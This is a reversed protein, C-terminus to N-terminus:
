PSHGSLSFSTTFAETLYAGQKSAQKCAASVNVQQLLVGWQLLLMRSFAKREQTLTVPEAPLNTVSAPLWLPPGTATPGDPKHAGVPLSSVFIADQISYQAGATSQQTLRAM